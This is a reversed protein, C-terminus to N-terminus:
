RPLSFLTAQCTALAMWVKGGQHKVYLEDGQVQGLDLQGTCVVQAQVAKAHTGAKRRWTAVTREDLGFAAVIAPIPCGYALLTLVLHVVWLPTKLGFLPSGRTAAFTRKCAHCISRREPHSHIGIRGSTTWDPNPSVAQAPCLTPLDTTSNM